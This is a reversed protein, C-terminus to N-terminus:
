IYCSNRTHTVRSPRIDSESELRLSYCFTTIIDWKLVTVIEVKNRAIIKTNFNNYWFTKLLKQKIILLVSNHVYRLIFEYRLIHRQIKNCNQAFFIFFSQVTTTIEIFLYKSFHLFTKQGYLSVQCMTVNIYPQKPGWQSGNYPCLCSFCEEFYRRKHKILSLCCVCKSHCLPSYAKSFFVISVM